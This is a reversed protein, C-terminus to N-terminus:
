YNYYYFMPTNYYIKIFYKNFIKRNTLIKWLFFINKKRYLSGTYHNNLIFLIKYNM